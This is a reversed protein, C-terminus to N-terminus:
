DYRSLEMYLSEYAEATKKWTHNEAFLTSNLSLRKYLERDNLIASIYSALDLADTPDRLICANSKDELDASIGCWPIDSVITPLGQAMAELVVMGYSDEQTPHALLDCARYIEDMHRVAGLFHVRRGLPAAQAYMMEKHEGEGVVVLHIEPTSVLANLLTTLGKKRMDNGVFLVIKCAQPLEHKGRLQVKEDMCAQPQVREVGPTIIRVMPISNGFSSEVVQYLPGSTVVVRKSFRPAFRRGEL